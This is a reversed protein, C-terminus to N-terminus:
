VARFQAYFFRGLPSISSPGITQDPLSSRWRQTRTRAERCPHSHLGSQWMREEAPFSAEWSNWPTMLAQPPFFPFSLAHACWGPGPGPLMKWQPSPGGPWSLPTLHPARTCVAAHVAPGAQGWSQRGGGQRGVRGKREISTCPRVCSCLCPCWLNFLIFPYM